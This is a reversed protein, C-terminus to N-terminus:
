SETNKYVVNKLDAPVEPKIYEWKSLRYYRISACDNEIAHQLNYVNTKASVIGDVLKSLSKESKIEPYNMVISFDKNVNSGTIDKFVSKEIDPYMVSLYNKLEAILDTQLINYSVLNRLRSRLNEFRRLQNNYYSFSSILSSILWVISVGLTICGSCMLEVIGTHVGILTLVSGVIGLIFVIILNFM